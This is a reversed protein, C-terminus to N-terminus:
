EGKIEEVNEKLTIIEGNNANVLVSSKKEENNRKNKTNLKFEYALVAKEDSISVYFLNPKEMQSYEMELKDYYAKIIEEAKKEDINKENEYHLNYPNVNSYGVLQGSAKDVKMTIGMNYYPYGKYYKYFIIDYCDDDIHLKQVEKFKFNEDTINGLYEESLRIADEEDIYSDEKGIVNNNLSFGIVNYKKDLDIGFRKSVVTYKCPSKENNSINITTLEENEITPIGKVKELDEKFEKAAKIEKNHKFIKVGVVYNIIVLIGIVILTVSKRKILM